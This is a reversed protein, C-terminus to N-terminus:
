QSGPRLLDALQNFKEERSGTVKTCMVHAPLHPQPGGRRTLVAACLPLTVDPFLRTPVPPTKGEPTLDIIAGRDAAARIHARMGDFAPASLWASPTLFAVTGASLRTEFAQWMAWRWFFVYLNSLTYDTRGRGPVRFEDLSPRWLEDEGRVSRPGPRRAEIWPAAGKAKDKYPLNGVIALPGDTNLRAALAPPLDGQLANGVVINDDLWDIPQLGGTELWCVSKALDVAVPDTDIGYVCAKLVDAMVARVTLPAPNQTGYLLGTYASALLQRAAVLFVGGGCAPDLVSVDLVDAPADDLRLDTIESLAARTLPRAVEPPTYWAGSATREASALLQERLRGLKVGDWAGLNGLDALLKGARQAADNTLELAWPKPLSRAAAITNVALRLVQRHGDHGPAEAALTEITSNSVTM